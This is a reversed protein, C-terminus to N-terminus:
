EKKSETKEEEEEEEEQKKKMLNLYWFIGGGGGFLVGVCSLCAFLGIVAGWGYRILLYVATGFIIITVIVGFIAGCTIAIRGLPNVKKSKKKSKEDAMVAEMRHSQFVVPNSSTGAGILFAFIAGILRGLGRPKKNVRNMRWATLKTTLIHDNREIVDQKKLSPPESVLEDENAALVMRVRRGAHTAPGRKSPPFFNTM